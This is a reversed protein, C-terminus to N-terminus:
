RSAFGMVRFGGTKQKAMGPGLGGADIEARLRAAGAAGVVVEQELLPLLQFKPALALERAFALASFLGDHVFQLMKRQLLPRLRVDGGEVRRILRAVYEVLSAAGSGV